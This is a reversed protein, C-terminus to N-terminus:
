KILILKLVYKYFHLVHSVQHILIITPNQCGHLFNLDQVEVEEMRISSAKLESNDKGLPIIKLLGDYLRLGIVRAEPDIVAIIGLKYIFILM